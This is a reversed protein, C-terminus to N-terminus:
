INGTNQYLIKIEGGVNSNTIYTNTLSNETKETIEHHTITASNSLISLDNNITFCNKCTFM